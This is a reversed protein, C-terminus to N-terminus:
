LDSTGIWDDVVNINLMQKSDVSNLILFYHFLPQSLGM